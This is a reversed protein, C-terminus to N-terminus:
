PRAPTPEVPVAPTKPATEEVAQIGHMKFEPPKPEPRIAVWLIVGLVLAVFIALVTLQTRRRDRILSSVLYLTDYKEDRKPAPSFGFASGANGDASDQASVPPSGNPDLNQTMDFERQGGVFRKQRHVDLPACQV